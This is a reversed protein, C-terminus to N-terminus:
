WLVPPNAPTLPGASAHAASSGGTFRVARSASISPMPRSPPSTPSPSGQPVVTVQNTMEGASVLADRSAPTHIPFRAGARIFWEQGSNLEKLWSREPPTWPIVRASEPPIIRVPQGAKGLGSLTDGDVQVKAGGTVLYLASSAADQLITGDPPITPVSSLFGDPVSQVAFWNYAMYNFADSTTVLYRVGEYIVWIDPSSNERLLCGNELTRACLPSVPDLLPAVIDWNAPPMVGRRWVSVRRLGMDRSEEVAALFREPPSNGQLM